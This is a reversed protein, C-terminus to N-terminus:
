TILSMKDNLYVLSNYCRKKRTQLLYTYEISRNGRDSVVYAEKNFFIFSYIFLFLFLIFDLVYFANILCFVHDDIIM